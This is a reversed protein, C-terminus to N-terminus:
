VVPDKTTVQDALRTEYELLMKAKASSVIGSTPSDFMSEVKLFMYSKVLSLYSDDGGPLFDVWNESGDETISFVDTPGVGLQHLIMFVANIHLALQIDFATESIQIGLLEKTTNLISDPLAM